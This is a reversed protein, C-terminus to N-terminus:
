ALEISGLHIRINRISECVAERDKASRAANYLHEYRAALTRADRELRDLKHRFAGASTPSPQRPRPHLLQSLAQAIKASNAPILAIAEAGVHLANERVCPQILRYQEPTIAVMEALEFYVPGFENLWAIRRDAHRRSITMHSGCYSAWSEAYPLYLKEERIKRLVEAHAATCRAAVLSLARRQGLAVGLSLTEEEASTLRHPQPM